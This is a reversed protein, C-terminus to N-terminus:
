RLMKGYTLSRLISSTVLSCNIIGTLPGLIVPLYDKIVRMNIKDPGPSKNTPITSIISQVETCTVPRLNFLEDTSYTTSVLLPNSLKINNDEALRLAAEAVNKGVSTFFQNFENAVLKPDKHNIIKWLSGSNDRHKQVEDFTHNRAANKLTIKVTNRAEKYNQWDSCARTRLFCRHLQDRLSIRMPEKIEHTIYPCPRGRIKFTRVPAYSDLISHLVDNFIRLKTNM